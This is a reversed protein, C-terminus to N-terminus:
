AKGYCKLKGLTHYGEEQVDDVDGFRLQTVPLSAKDTLLGSDQRWGSGSNRCNCPEGGQCSNTMGCACKGSGPTAGGWYFMRSGDRSVWWAYKDQLFTIDNRCEFKIFQECNSSVATLRALQTTSAGSYTVDKSYCGPSSCGKKKVHTRTEANHSIVTVGVGSKDSMDCYVTFPAQGGAGDPDIVYNQSRFSKDIAKVDSCSRVREVLLTTTTNISRFRNRATCVYIGADEKRVARLMLSGDPFNIHNPPLLSNQRTWSVSIAGAATCRLRVTAGYLVVLAKPEKLKFQLKPLVTIQAHKTDTNLLNKAKCFYVGEDSKSIKTITLKRGQQNVNVNMSLSGPVKSWTIVPSPEGTATCDLTLNNGEEIHTAKPSLSIEAGVPYISFCFINVM